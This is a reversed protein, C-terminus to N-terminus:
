TRIMDPVHVQEMDADEDEEEDYDEDIENAVCTLPVGAMAASLKEALGEEGGDEALEAMQVALLALQAQLAARDQPDLEVVPARPAAAVVAGSSGDDGSPGPPPLPPPAPHEGVGDADGTNGGGLDMLSGFNIAKLINQAAM